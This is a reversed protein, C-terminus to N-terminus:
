KSDDEFEAHIKIWLTGPSPGIIQKSECSKPMTSITCTQKKIQSWDWSQHDHGTAGFGDNPIGRAESLHLEDRKRDNEREQWDVYKYFYAMISFIIMDVFMLGAFMFFESAQLCMLVETTYM